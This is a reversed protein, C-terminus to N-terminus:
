DEGLWQELADASVVDKNITTALATLKPSPTIADFTVETLELVPPLQEVTASMQNGHFTINVMPLGAYPDAKKEAEAGVTQVMFALGKRLTEADDTFSLMQFYRPLLTLAAEQMDEHLATKFEALTMDSM